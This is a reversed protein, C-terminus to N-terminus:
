NSIIKQAIESEIVGKSVCTLTMDQDVAGPKYEGKINSRAILTTDDVIINMSVETKTRNDKLYDLGMTSGCSAQEPSLKWNKYSTSIYGETNSASQIQYGEMLLVRKAKAIVTMKDSGHQGSFHKNETSSAQYTTACGGIIALSTTILVPKNM